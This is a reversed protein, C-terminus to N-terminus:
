MCYSSLLHLPLSCVGEMPVVPAMYGASLPCPNCVKLSSSSALWWCCHVQWDIRQTYMGCPRILSVLSPLLEPLCVLLCDAPTVGVGGVVPWARAASLAAAPRGRCSTM